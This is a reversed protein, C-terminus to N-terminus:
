RREIKEKIIGAICSKRYNPLTMYDKTKYITLDIVTRKDDSSFFHFRPDNFLNEIKVIIKDQNIESKSKLM